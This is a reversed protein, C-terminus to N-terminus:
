EVASVLSSRESLCMNMCVYICICVSIWNCSSARNICLVHGFAYLCVPVILFPGCFCFCVHLCFCVLMIKGGGFFFPNHTQAHRGIVIVCVKVFLCFKIDVEAATNVTYRLPSWDCASSVSWYSAAALPWAGGTVLTNTPITNQIWFNFYVNTHKQWSYLNLHAFLGQCLVFICHSNYITSKMIAFYQTLPSKSWHFTILPPTPATPPSPWPDISKKSFIM